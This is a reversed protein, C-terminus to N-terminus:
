RMIWLRGKDLLIVDSRFAPDGGLAYDLELTKRLFVRKARGTDDRAVPHEVAVIENSLGTIFLKINKAKADFDPWIVAIDKTNDQGQLIKSTTMRLSEIFPYRGQHRTQIMEFVIPPTKKTAPIIQFTDTMLECKPFVRQFVRNKAPRRGCNFQIVSKKLRMM